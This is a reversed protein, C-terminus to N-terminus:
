CSRGSVVLDVLDAIFSEDTNLAPVRRWKTVGAMLALHRYEGDIEELTEIHESVFSIPVVVLNRVGQEGGLSRLTDDTYPRLWQVPGVRSQFSLHYTIEQVQGPQASSPPAPPAASTAAAPPTKTADMVPLSRFTKNTSEGALLQATRPSIFRSDATAGRNPADRLLAAVESAVLRVCDEIQAQYPDGAAIYSQPVGHASFLVHLGAAMEPESFAQVERLILQAVARVYGPRQYWSPVVTHAVRQPGWLDPRARFADELLKLSSGSTSVSYQPYLPLVVLRRVGDAAVRALVEETFPHWYRMAFYVQASAHGRARLAAQVLDAQAQTYAEIPSGGGISAYAAASKPARCFLVFLAAAVDRLAAGISVYEALRSRAIFYALPKQLFGLLRPLRIIDPDSFLNYLFGEM